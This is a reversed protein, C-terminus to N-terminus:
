MRAHLMVWAAMALWPIVAVGLCLGAMAALSRWYAHVYLLVGCGCALSKAGVLAAGPGVEHMTAALLANMELGIGFQSVGWYTLWGDLLQTVFFIVLVLPAQRADDARIQTRATVRSLARPQEWTITQV